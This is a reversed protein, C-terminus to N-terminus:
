KKNAVEAVKAKKVLDQIYETGKQSAALRYMEPKVEEFSPFPRERKDLQKIVFYGEPSKFPIPRVQGKDLALVADAFGPISFRDIHTYGLEGGKDATAKDLSDKAIEIFPTGAKVKAIADAAEAETKFLAIQANVETPKYASKAQEYAKKADEDKVPNNKLYRGILENSLINTRAADLAIKINPENTIKQRNAEQSIVTQAVLNNRAINLQQTKDKVGQSELFEMLNKQSAPSVTTGNVTFATQANASGLAVLAAAAFIIKKM